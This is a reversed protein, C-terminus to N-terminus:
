VLEGTHIDKGYAEGTILRHWGDADLDRMISTTDHEAMHEAMARRGAASDEFVPSIPTGESITQWLQIGMPVDTPLPHRLYYAPNPPGGDWEEFTYPDGEREEFYEPREGRQWAERREWWDRIAEDYTRMFMSHLEDSIDGRLSNWTNGGFREAQEGITPHKYDLPVVRLERGSMMIAPM